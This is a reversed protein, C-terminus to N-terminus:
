TSMDTLLVALVHTSDHIANRGFSESELAERPAMGRAREGSVRHGERGPDPGARQVNRCRSSPSHVSSNGVRGGTRSERQQVRSLHDAHRRFGSDDLHLDNPFVAGNADLPKRGRVVPGHPDCVVGSLRADAQRLANARRYSSQLRDGRGLQPAGRIWVGCAERGSTVSSLWSDKDSCPSSKLAASIQFPDGVKNGGAWWSGESCRSCDRSFCNHRPNKRATKGDAIRLRSRPLVESRDLVAHGVRFCARAVAAKDDVETTV